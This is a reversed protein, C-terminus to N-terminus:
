RSYMIATGFIGTVGVTNIGLRNKQAGLRIKATARAQNALHVATCWGILRSTIIEDHQTLSNDENKVGRSRDGPQACVVEALVQCCYDIWGAAYMLWQHRDPFGINFYLANVCAWASASCTYGYASFM